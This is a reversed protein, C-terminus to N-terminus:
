LLARQGGAQRIVAWVDRQGVLKFKASPKETTRNTRFSPVWGHVGYKSPCCAVFVHLM